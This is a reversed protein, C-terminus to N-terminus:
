SRGRARGPGRAPRARGALRDAVLGRLAREREDARALRVAAAARHHEVREHGRAEDAEDAPHQGGVRHLAAARQEGALLALLDGGARQASTSSPVSGSPGRCSATRRRPSRGCACLRISSPFSSVNRNSARVARLPPRAVVPLASRPEYRVGGDRRCRWGAARAPRRRGRPAPGPAGAVAEVHGVDRPEMRADVRDGPGERHPGGAAQDLAALQAARHPLHRDRAVEDRHQLRHLRHARSGSPARRPCRSPREAAAARSPRKPSRLGELASDSGHSLRLNRDSRSLFGDGSGLRGPANNPESLGLGGRLSSCHRLRFEHVLHCVREPRPLPSAVFATSVTM